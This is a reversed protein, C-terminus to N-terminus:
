LQDSVLDFEHVLEIKGRFKILTHAWDWHFVVHVTAPNLYLFPRFVFKVINFIQRFYSTSIM